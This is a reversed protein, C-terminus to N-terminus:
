RENPTTVLLFGSGMERVTRNARFGVILEELQAQQFPWSNLQPNVVTVMGKSENCGLEFFAKLIPPYGLHPFIAAQACIHEAGRLAERVEHMASLRQWNPRKSKAYGNGFLPFMFVATTIAFELARPQRPRAQTERTRRVDLLGFLILAILPVAYYGFFDHMSDYTATGLLVIVPLMAATARVSLLPLLLAPVLLKWVGSTLVRLAAKLPEKVMGLAASLPTPGFDSWYSGYDPQHGLVWSQVIGVYVALFLLSVTALGLAERWRHREVLLVGVSFGVVIFATDEKTLLLAAVSALMWFRRRAVWAVLFAITLPPIAYEIRFGGIVLRGIWPNALYALAVGLTLLGPAQALPAESDTTARNSWRVLRPIGLLGLWIVLPGVLLMLYPTRFVAHLPVLALLLFSSHVGLHNVEYIPSYGVQGRLTSELMWEYVSFDVGSIDFALFRSVTVLEMWLLAAACLMRWATRNLPAQAASPHFLAMGLAAVAIAINVNRFAVLEGLWPGAIGALAMSAAAVYTLVDPTLLRATAALPIRQTTM